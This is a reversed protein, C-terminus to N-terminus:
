YEGPERFRYGVGRVTEILHAHHGLKRRLARIHVDITRELVIADNGLASDILENRSFARGPQRLMAQLLGFETPTLDLLRGGALARHRVRDIVIGQSSLVDGSKEDAERRRLLARIRQLLVRVSFPKTVYDDAGTTFGVLQDSEESRATLMLVLVGKLLPDTRIQKCLDLGDMEPLMLDLVILDPTERRAALIGTRGDRAALVEYGAQQLNYELVESLSVDDEIVLIRGRASGPEPRATEHTETVPRTRILLSTM